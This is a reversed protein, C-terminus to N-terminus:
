MMLIIMINIKDQDKLQDFFCPLQFYWWQGHESDEFIDNKLNINFKSKNQDNKIFYQVLELSGKFKAQM